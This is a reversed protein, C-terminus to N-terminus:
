ANEWAYKSIYLFSFLVVPLEILWEAFPTSHCIKPIGMAFLFQDVCVLAMCAIATSFALIRWYNM